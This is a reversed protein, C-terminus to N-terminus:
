DFSNRYVDDGAQQSSDRQLDKLYRREYRFFENSRQYKSINELLKDCEDLVFVKLNEM